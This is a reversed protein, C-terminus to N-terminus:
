GPRRRWSRCTKPRGLRLAHAGGELMGADLLGRIDGPQVPGYAIRGAPTAVEIM